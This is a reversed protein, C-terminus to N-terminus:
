KVGRGWGISYNRGGERIGVTPLLPMTNSATAEAGPARRGGCASAEAAGGSGDAEVSDEWRAMIEEFMALPIMVGHMM